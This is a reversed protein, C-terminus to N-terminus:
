ILALTRGNIRAEEAQFHDSYVTAIANGSTM